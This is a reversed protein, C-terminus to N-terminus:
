NLIMYNVISVDAVNITKAAILATITLTNATCVAQIDVTSGATLPSVVQLFAKSTTLLGAITIAKTGAVLTTQGVVPAQSFAAVNGDPDCYSIQTGIQYYTNREPLSPLAAVPIIRAGNNM